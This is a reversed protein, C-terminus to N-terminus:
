WGASPGAPLEEISDGQEMFKRHVSVAVYRVGLLVVMAFLGILIVKDIFETGGRREAILSPWARGSDQHPDHEM